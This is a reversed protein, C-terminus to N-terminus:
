IGQTRLSSGNLIRKSSPLLVQPKPDPWMSQFNKTLNHIEGETSSHPRPPKWASPQHSNWLADPAEAFKNLRSTEGFASGFDTAHGNLLTADSSQRTEPFTSMGSLIKQAAQLGFDKSNVQWINSSRKMEESTLNTAGASSIHIDPTMRDGALAFANVTRDVNWPEGTTEPSRHGPIHGPSLRGGLSLRAASALADPNLRLQTPNYLGSTSNDNMQSIMHSFNLADNNWTSNDTGFLQSNALALPDHGGTGMLSSAANPHTGSFLSSIVNNGMTNVDISLRGPQMQAANGLFGFDADFPQQHSSMYEMSSKPRGSNLFDLGPRRGVPSLRRTKASLWAQSPRDMLMDPNTPPLATFNGMMTPTLNTPVPTTRHIAFHKFAESLRAVQEMDLEFSFQAGNSTMYNEAIFRRFASEPLPPYSDSTDM